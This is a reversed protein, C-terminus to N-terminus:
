DFRALLELGEVEVALEISEDLGNGAADPSRAPLESLARWNSRDLQHFAAAWGLFRVREGLPQAIRLRQGPRLQFQRHEVLDEGLAVAADQQLVYFDVREFRTPSALQYMRLVVPLSRGMADPNVHTAAALTLRLVVPRPERPPPAVPAPAAAPAPVPALGVLRAASACGGLLLLSGLAV